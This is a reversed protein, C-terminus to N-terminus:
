FRLGHQAHLVIVIDGL